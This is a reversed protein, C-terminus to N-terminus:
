AFVNASSLDAQAATVKRVIQLLLLASASLVVAELLNVVVFSGGPTISSLRSSVNALINGVIWCGWWTRLLSEENGTFSDSTRHSENWIEKMAQFPKYLNIIPAFYWGWSGRPSYLMEIGAAHLNANAQHLWMATLIVCALFTLAFLLGIIGAAFTANNVDTSDILGSAECYAFAARLVVFAPLLFGLAGARWRLANLGQQEM